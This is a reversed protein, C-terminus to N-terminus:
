TTRRSLAQVILRFPMLAILAVMVICLGLVWWQEPGRERTYVGAADALYPGSEMSEENDEPM